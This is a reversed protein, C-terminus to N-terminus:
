RLFSRGAVAFYIELVPRRPSAFYPLPCPEFCEDDSYCIFHMANLHITQGDFVNTFFRIFPYDRETLSPM